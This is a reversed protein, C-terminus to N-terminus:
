WEAFYILAEQDSESWHDREENENLGSLWNNLYRVLQWLPWRENFM